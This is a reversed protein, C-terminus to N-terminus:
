APRIVRRKYSPLKANLVTDELPEDVANLDAIDKSVERDVDVYNDLSSGPGCLESAHPLPVEDHYRAVASM